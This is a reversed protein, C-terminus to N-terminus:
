QSSIQRYGRNELSWEGGRRLEQMKKITQHIKYWFKLQRIAFTTYLQFARGNHDFLLNNQFPTDFRPTYFEGSFYSNDEKSVSSSFLSNRRIVLSVM